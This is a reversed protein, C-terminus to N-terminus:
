KKFGEALKFLEKKPDIAQMIDSAVAVGVAGLELCKSVDSTSHVGAGVILPIGVKKSVEFAMSIIKPEASAVSTDKSGILAPPEYSIFDPKLKSVKELEEIDKAFILTKLGVEKARNHAKTLTEFDNLRNESHNLFTGRAGDELVAEPLISGTHAGYTVPDIKQSWVELSANSVIERIDSNQVVPIIKVGTSLLVEKAIKSMALAMDGTGSEYTKFNLFIM